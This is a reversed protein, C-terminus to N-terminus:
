CIILVKSSKKLESIEVSTMTTSYNHAQKWYLLFIINIFFNKGLMFYKRTCHKLICLLPKDGLICQEYYLTITDCGLVKLHRKSFNSGFPDTEKKKGTKDRNGYTKKRGRFSFWVTITFGTSTMRYCSDVEDEREPKVATGRQTINCSLTQPQVLSCFLLRTVIDFMWRAGSPAKQEWNAHEGIVLRGSHSRKVSLWHRTLKVSPIQCIPSMMLATHAKKNGESFLDSRAPRNNWRRVASCRRATKNQTTRLIAQWCFGCAYLCFALPNEPWNLGGHPEWSCLLFWINILCQQRQCSEVQINRLSWSMPWKDNPCCSLAFYVAETSLYAALSSCRPPMARKVFRVDSKKTLYRSWFLKILALVSKLKVHTISANINLFM